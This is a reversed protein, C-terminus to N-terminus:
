LSKTVKVGFFGDVNVLEGYAVLVNNVYIRIPEDVEEDLVVADNEHLSLIDEITRVTSGFVFRVNMEVNQLISTDIYEPEGTHIELLEIPEVAPEPIEEVNEEKISAEEELEISEEVDVHLLRKVMEKAESLPLIQYMKSQVLDGIELNFTIQVLEDSDAEKGLYEMEEKLTVFKVTPPTIDMKEMFMESMATAAHGMMQNMIEKVGSLEMETLEQESDIEGTGMMMLDVMTLAVDKTFVFVNESKLGEVFDVNLIVFPVPVGDYYRVDITEVNPTSISVPQNLLTSLVTSASGISINAIEGLVDKEEQTLKEQFPPEEVLEQKNEEEQVEEILEQEGGGSLQLLKSIMQKAHEVSVIQVLKSNVLHDIKLDFSVKIITNSEDVGSIKEIEEFLKVVKITPPSMDVTDQFFESMSTAAFGMMQNMAEQVASLELEGLEKGEEVEGTGMMMLDAIALAVDQQLVLLNEMDLGKTFQINLVVHPVEIDRTDYLDVVEVHPTTISVQRNLITSLVTSASGFSINAIEGLIDYEQSTLLQNEKKLVSTAKDEKTHQESM